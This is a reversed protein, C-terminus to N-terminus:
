ARTSRCASWGSISPPHWRSARRGCVTATAGTRSCTCRSHLPRQLRHGAGGDVRHLPRPRDAAVGARAPHRLPALLARRGPRAAGAARLPLGRLRPITARPSRAPTTCPITWAKKLQHIGLAAAIDPMNYKFGPAVVEYFWSPVRSTYRDFVDRSIGHLRMARMRKLVAEDRSVVMGGEGTTITKTAYFSFVTVDSSRASPRGSSRPRCLTRPTRSSRCATRQDRPGAAGGHRLEPRRFACPAAGEAHPLACSGRARTGSRPQLHASRHRRVRARRRPLARGGGHRYFHLADDAGPRRARRRAGRARPAAGGDRFQLQDRQVGGGIFAAFDEEFRRARPGTTIWGSRLTDVVEAIEEEGIDPLAFPLFPRTQPDQTM